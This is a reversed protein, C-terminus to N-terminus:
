NPSVAPQKSRAAIIKLNGLEPLSRLAQAVKDGSKDPLCIDSFVIDPQGGFVIASFYSRQSLHDLKSRQRSCSRDSAFIRHTDM